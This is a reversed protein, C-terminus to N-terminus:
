PQMLGALVRPQEGSSAGPRGRRREVSGILRTVANMCRVRHEHSHPRRALLESAEILYTRDLATMRQWGGFPEALERARAEIMAKREAVTLSGRPNGSRGPPFPRGVSRGDSSRLASRQETRQANGAESM